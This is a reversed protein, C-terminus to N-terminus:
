STRHLPFEMSSDAKHFSLSEREEKVDALSCLGLLSIANLTTPFVKLRVLTNYRTSIVNHYFMPDNRYQFFWNLFGQEGQYWSPVQNKQNMMTQFTHEDPKAVFLGTNFEDGVIKV